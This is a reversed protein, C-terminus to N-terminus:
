RKSKPMGSEPTESLIGLSKKLIIEREQMRVLEERLRRIEADKEEPTQPGPAPAGARPAYLRRWEYLRDVPVGLEEAVARVTRGGNLTLEVANRKYTEDYHRYKPYRGQLNGDKMTRKGWGDDWDLQECLERGDVAVRVPLPLGHVGPLKIFLEVGHGRFRPLRM